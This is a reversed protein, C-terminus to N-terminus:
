GQDPGGIQAVAILLARVQRPNAVVRRDVAEVARRVNEAEALAKVPMSADRIWRLVDGAEPTKLDEVTPTLYAYLALRM